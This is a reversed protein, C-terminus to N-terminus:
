EEIWISMYGTPATGPNSTPIFGNKIIGLTARAQEANTDDLLTDIYPTSETESFLLENGIYLKGM